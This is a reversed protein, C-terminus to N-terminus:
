INVDVFVSILMMITRRKRVRMLLATRTLLIMMSVITTMRVEEFTVKNFM